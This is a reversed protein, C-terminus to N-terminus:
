GAVGDLWDALRADAQDQTYRELYRDRAALGMRARLDDDELLRIVRDALQEPVPRDLVFGTEGDIVTEGIAGRDTTVVPLGASMAELVVRPHGEAKVPPFLFVAAEGLLSTKAERWVPGPFRVAHGAGVVRARALREVAPGHWEGAFVFRADPVRELVLKAADLAPLLGKRAQLNSLFVVSRSREGPQVGGGLDPTGNPVVAIRSAPLFGSFLGRLRRGMVAVSDVRALTARVWRRLPRPLGTYFDLFEGGRLHVAVRWGLGAALHVFLADRLIGGTSQSLPLYVTGRSGRLSRALRGAHTLGLLVNTADWRGLTSLPRRDSTDLHEVRFRERLYPNALALATSVAVGHVPPPVPGIVILPRERM